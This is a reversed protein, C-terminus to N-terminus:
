KKTEINCPKEADFPARTGALSAFNRFKMLNATIRLSVGRHGWGNESPPTWWRRYGDTGLRKEDRIGASTWRHADGISWENFRLRKMAVWRDCTLVRGM